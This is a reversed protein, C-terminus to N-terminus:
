IAWKPKVEIYFDVLDDKRKCLGITRNIDSTILKSLDEKDNSECKKLEINSTTFNAKPKGDLVLTDQVEVKAHESDPKCIKMKFTYSDQITYSSSVQNLNIYYSETISKESCSKVDLTNGKKMSIADQNDASKNACGVFTLGCMILSGLLAKKM